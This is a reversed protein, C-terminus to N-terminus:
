CLSWSSLPVAFAGGDRELRGRQVLREITREREKTFAIAGVDRAAQELDLGEALRLGLMIRERLREEPGLEEVWDVLESAEHLSGHETSRAARMYQMPNPTNRYRLATPHTREANSVPLAGVAASGLGLYFRGRWYALNHRSEAGSVAYNSIEYHGLGRKSLTEHIAFFSDVMGEEPAIPLRSKKALEGFRTGQEITLNYASIHTCGTDIVRSVERAADDVSQGAVGYILDGSVRQFGAKQADELARLGGREDHLRGLFKLRETDLSQIGVSVRNIGAERLARARELDLSSPNCEATIEIEHDCGSNGSGFRARLATILRALQTPEWLSPTGGGVFVTELTPRFGQAELHAARRDLEALVANTYREHEIQEAALPYSVFDCYPCKALCWPFHVYVHLPMSVPQPM